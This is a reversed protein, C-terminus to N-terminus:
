TGSRTGAGGGGPTAGAGSLLWKGDVRRLQTTGPGSKGNVKSTWNLTAQDGDVTVKDITANKGAQEVVRANEPIAYVATM